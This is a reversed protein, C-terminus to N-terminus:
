DQRGAVLELKPPDAKPVRRVIRRAELDLKVMAVYWSISGEFKGRLRANVAQSLETFTLSGRARLVAIISARVLDYKARSIRKGQKGSEPHRTLITEEM